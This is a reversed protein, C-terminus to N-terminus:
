GQAFNSQPLNVLLSSLKLPTFMGTIEMFITLACHLKSVRAAEFLPRILENERFVDVGM